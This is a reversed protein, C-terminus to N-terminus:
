RPNPPRKAANTLRQGVERSSVDIGVQAELKMGVVLDLRHRLRDVEEQFAHFLLGVKGLGNPTPLLILLKLNGFFIDEPHAEHFHLIAELRRLDAFHHLSLLLLM